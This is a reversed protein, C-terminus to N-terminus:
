PTPGKDRIAILGQLMADILALAVTGGVRDGDFGEDFVPDADLLARPVPGARFDAGVSAHVVNGVGIAKSGPPCVSADNTLDCFGCSWWWGPLMDEVMGITQGIDHVFAPSAELNEGLEWLAWNIKHSIDDDDAADPMRVLELIEDLSM